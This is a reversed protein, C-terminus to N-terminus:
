GQKAPRGRRAKPMSGGKRGDGDHDLPDRAVTEAEAVAPLDLEEAGHAAVPALEAEIAVVTAEVVVHAQAAEATAIMGAALMGATADGFDREAGVDLAERTFGDPYWGFPKLAVHKM